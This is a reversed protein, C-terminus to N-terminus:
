KHVVLADPGPFVLVTHGDDFEVMFPPTGDPGMVETIVGTRDREGVANAHVLLRDGVTAKM